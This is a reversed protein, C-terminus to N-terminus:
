STGLLKKMATEGLDTGFAKGLTAFFWAGDRKREAGRLEPHMTNNHVSYCVRGLLTDGDSDREFVDIVETPFGFSRDRRVIIAPSSDQLPDRVQTKQRFCLSTNLDSPSPGHGRITFFLLPTNGTGTCDGSRDATTSQISQIAGEGDRQIEIVKVGALAATLQLPHYIGADSAM